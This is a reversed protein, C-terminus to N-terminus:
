NKKLINEFHKLYIFLFSFNYWILSGAFNSFFSGSSRLPFFTLVNVLFFSIFIVYEFNNYYVKFKKNFIVKICRIFFYFITILFILTSFLGTESIMEIYINHPHSSCRGKRFDSEINEYIENSCEFKFQKLGIGFYVNNIFIEYGTLFHAGWQSDFFTKKKSINDEIINKKIEIQSIFTKYRSSFYDNKSVQFIFFFLFFILAISLKYRFNKLFIVTLFLTAITMIFPMRDGSLFVAILYSLVFFFILFNHFFKFSHLKKKIFFILFILSTYFLNYLTSGVILEDKFIATLRGANQANAKFGFIDEKLPNFYQYYADLIVALALFFSWLFFKNQIRKKFIDAFLDITLFFIFFRILTVSSHLSQKINLSFFSSLILSFFYLILLRKIIDDYLFSIEKNSIFFLIVFSVFVLSVAAQGICYSLPLLYFFFRLLRENVFILKM